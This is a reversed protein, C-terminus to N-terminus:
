SILVKPIKIFVAVYPEHFLSLQWDIAEQESPPYIKVPDVSPIAEAGIISSM